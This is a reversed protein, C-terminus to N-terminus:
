IKLKSTMQYDRRGKTFVYQDLRTESLSNRSNKPDVWSCERIDHGNITTNHRPIVTTLCKSIKKFLIKKLNNFVSLNILPYAIPLFFTLFQEQFWSLYIHFQSFVSHHAQIRKKKNLFRKCGGTESIYYIGRHTQNNSILYIM